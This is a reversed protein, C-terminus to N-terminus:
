TRTREPSRPARHRAARLVISLVLLDYAVWALNVYTGEATALGLQLRVTGVVAAVVLLTMAVLQPRILRWTPGEDGGAKPTVVFGLERAFLVNGVATVCARIWLPFLALSYQQGRWTRLGQGVVRFLLQSAVLYPVLHLWFADGYSVVPQVGAVLYLVPAALFALAAFGALYSWMTALYMLRQGLSLGRQVLPNEKLMVQLTGQSWRLRQQLMAGLSEPALGRALVEHHYVSRWGLAHLRMATAMDETVSITALPMVPQAEGARDVEVAAVLAKVSELAGLPSWDRHALRTLVVDDTLTATGGGVTPAPLAAIEALDAHLRALDDAVVDRGAADVRRQFRHTVDSVPQGSALESRARGVAVDVADLAAAVAPGHAAADRRAGAVVSRAARLARAVGREVDRVYGVIGLQMLAERRVVANSGCFYAANWGDKGQQIPGYFLPAQSGLVDSGAVNSFWQPTQVLAVRPDDFWGLTRTLIDPSPVQDADLVLLFEGETVLLANNLNGAKAHRPRDVWDASRTLYGVGAELAATRMEERAGDDLVWTRHPHRIALAARATTLVLDVPEDYTTVFVDVTADQPAPPAATRQRIRWTTLGFFFADVLSYTEALALPVAIWWHAWNVSDLWRWVLYDVGAVLTLLVLVRILVRRGRSVERLARHRSM